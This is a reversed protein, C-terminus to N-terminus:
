PSVVLQHLSIAKRPTPACLGTGSDKAGRGSFGLHIGRGIRKRTTVEHSDDGEGPGDQMRSWAESLAIRRCRQLGGHGVRGRLIGLRREGRLRLGPRAKCALHVGLGIVTFRTVASRAPERAALGQDCAAIRTHAAGGGDGVRALAGIHRDVIKGNLLWIGGLNNRQDLGLLADAKRNGAVQAVLSEAFLEHFLRHAAQAAEVDDDVVGAPLVARPPKPQIVLM